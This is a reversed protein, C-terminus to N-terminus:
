RWRIAESSSTPWTCRRRRCHPRSSRPSTTSTLCTWSSSVANGSRELLPVLASAPVRDPHIVLLAGAKQPEAVAARLETASLGGIEHVGLEILREAQRSLEPVTQLTAPVRVESPTAIPCPDLATLSLMTGSRCEGIVPRRDERLVIM